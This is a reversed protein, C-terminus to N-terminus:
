CHSALLKIKQTLKKAGALNVHHGDHFDTISFSVDRTFNFLGTYEVEKIQQMLVWDFNKCFHSVFFPHYPPLVIFLKLSLEKCHISIKELWEFMLRRCWTKFYGSKLGFDEAYGRPQPYYGGFKSCYSYFYDFNNKNFVFSKRIEKENTFHVPAEIGFILSILFPIFNERSKLMNFSFSFFSFYLIVEKLQPAYFQSNKDTVQKLLYYMYALDCSRIGLNYAASSYINPIFGYKAHSSGLVLTEIRQRYIYSNYKAILSNYEPNYNVGLNLHILPKM